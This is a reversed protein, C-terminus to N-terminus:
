WDDPCPTTFSGCSRCIAGLSFGDQYWPDGHRASELRPMGKFQVTWLLMDGPELHVPFNKNRKYEFEGFGYFDGAIDAWGLVTSRNDFFDNDEVTVKAKAKALKRTGEESVLRLIVRIKGGSSLHPYASDFDTSRGLDYGFRCMVIDMQEPAVAALKHKKPHKMTADPTLWWFNRLWHGDTASVPAESIAIVSLLLVARTLLRRTMPQRAKSQMQPKGVTRRPHPQM